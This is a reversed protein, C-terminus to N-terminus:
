KSNSVALNITAGDFQAAIFVNMKRGEKECELMLAEPVDTTKAIKWGDQNVKKKYFAGVNKASDATKLAVKTEKEGRSWLTVRAKPYIAVDNTLKPPLAISEKGIASHVEEGDQSTFAFEREQNKPTEAAKRKPDVGDTSRKCGAQLVLISLLLSMGLCSTSKALRTLICRAM